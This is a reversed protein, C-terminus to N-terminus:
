KTSIKDIRLYKSANYINLNTVYTTQNTGAIPVQFVMDVHMEEQGKVLGIRYGLLM